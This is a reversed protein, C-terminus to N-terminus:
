LLIRYSSNSRHSAQYNEPAPSLESVGIACEYVEDRDVIDCVSCRFEQELRVADPDCDAFPILCGDNSADCLVAGAYIFQDAFQVIVTVGTETASTTYSQSTHQFAAVMFTKLLFENMIYFSVQVAYLM